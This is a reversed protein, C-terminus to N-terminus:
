RMMDDSFSDIVVDGVAKDVVVVFSHLSTPRARQRLAASINSVSCVADISEPFVTIGGLLGDAM